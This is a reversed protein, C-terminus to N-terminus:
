CYARQKRTKCCCRSITSLPLSRISFYSTFFIFHSTIKFTLSNFLLNSTDVSASRQNLTIIRASSCKEVDSNNLPLPKKNKSKSFGQCGRTPFIRLEADVLLPERWLTRKSQFSDFNNGNGKMPKPCSTGKRSLKKEKRRQKM